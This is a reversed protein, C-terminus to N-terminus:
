AIAGDARLSAIEAPTLGADALVADTDAGPAPSAGRIRGPTRSFRPAPAPQTVGAVDVFAQRARAQPHKAAEALDLVPAFCVDTGELLACWEDRTKTAVVAALRAKADPWSARDGPAPVPGRGNVDAALGTLRVLETFFQPELSGISIWGGDATEFV